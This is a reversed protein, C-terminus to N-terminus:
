SWTALQLLVSTPVGAGSLVCTHGARRWTVVTRGDLKLVWFGYSTRSGMPTADTPQALVPSAVITYAISRRDARYYVTRALRGDLKDTRQGDARWGFSDAWNPFTLNQIRVDLQTASPASVAATPTRSALAAAQSISPAGPTGTPLAVALVVGAVIVAMAFALGARARTQRRRARRARESRTAEIATRVSAPARDNIAARRLRAVVARERALLETLEPSSDIWARVADARSSDLTGDALASLDALQAPSLQTEEDQPAM